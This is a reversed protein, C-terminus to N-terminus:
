PSLVDMYWSWLANRLRDPPRLGGTQPITESAALGGLMFQFTGFMPSRGGQGGGREASIHRVHPPMVGGHGLSTQYGHVIVRVFPDFCSCTFDDQFLLVM